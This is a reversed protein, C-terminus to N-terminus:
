KRDKFAVKSLKEMIIPAMIGFRDVDNSLWDDGAELLVSRVRKGCISLLQLRASRVENIREIVGAITYKKENSDIKSHYGNYSGIAYSLKNTFHKFVGDYDAAKKNYDKWTRYIDYIFYIVFLISLYILLERETSMITKTFFLVGKSIAILIIGAILKAIVSKFVNM